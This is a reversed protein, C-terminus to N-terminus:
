GLRRPTRGGGLVGIGPSRGAGRHVGRAAGRADASRSAGGPGPPNGAVRDRDGRSFAKLGAALAILVLAAAVLFKAQGFGRRPCSALAADLASSFQELTPYRDDRDDCLARLLVDDVAKSLGPVLRSPPRIVGLPAHGTLMEYTLAALSFQDAREDVKLGYQQEPATYGPTGMGLQTGTLAGVGDRLVAIGFDAVKPRIGDHMLINEPKLDRHLIGEAHLRGLADAVAALIPRAEAPSMPREPHMLRRLDGGEVYEMVLYHRGGAVGSDIVHVVNPHSVRAMLEAERRFRVVREDLALTGRPKLYKIAVRRGLAEQRAVYVDGMGGQGIPELIEYGPIPPPGASFDGPLSMTSTSEGEGQSAM